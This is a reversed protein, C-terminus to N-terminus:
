GLIEEVHAKHERKLAAKWGRGHPLKESVHGCACFYQTDEGDQVLEPDAHLRKEALEAAKTALEIGRYIMPDGSSTRAIYGEGDQVLFYGDLVKSPSVTFNGM